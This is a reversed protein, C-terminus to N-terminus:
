LAIAITKTELYEEFGEIGMERGIGSQKYGGFPADAAYFNGGNVNITGTRIRRAVALAREESASWVSGSLGFDSDNAIRIADEEDDYAIVALVPGFIEERAITMDNTVDVFVTPEVYYGKELHEPRGGGLLVRAGESKGKAIYELVREQQRANVQPGMIQSDSAPDGYQIFGFYTKLLEEVEPQKHRPILLRTNLACGQGAHFCVALCSLLSAGLDADDLMINASKGGLELFVKKVTSSARAMIRKGVATSGTFSVMDVRPDGVVQDGIIAPDRATVVNFVGAPIDTYEKVVRGLMTASWPTDPAAKLIVTCGAALAPICKALNIQVPVNWPTICAVVGIAEKEVLRRNRGGMIESIGIDRSWQYKPLSALTYDIFGIPIECQPGMAGCIGMPAGTEAAIMQKFEDMVVLLGQQLQQLCRHRLDHNTSWDTEDFARRAAAIAREMDSPGADAVQGMLEETAPNINPYTGGGAAEVLEGDIFLRHECNV